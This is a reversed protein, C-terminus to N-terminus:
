RPIAPPPRPAATQPHSQGEFGLGMVLVVTGLLV